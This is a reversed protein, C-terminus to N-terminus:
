LQSTQKGPRGRGRYKPQGSIYEEKMRRLAESKGEIAKIKKKEMSDIIVYRSIINSVYKGCNNNENNNNNEDYVPFDEFIEQKIFKDLEKRL